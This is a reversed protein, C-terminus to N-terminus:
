RLPPPAARRKRGVLYGLVPPLLLLPLLWWWTFVVALFVVLSVGEYVFEGRTCPHRLGGMILRGGCLGEYNGAEAAAVAVLAALVLAVDVLLGVLVYKLAKTKM